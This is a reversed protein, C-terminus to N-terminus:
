GRRRRAFWLGFVTLVVFGALGAGGRGPSAACFAGGAVGYNIPQPGADPMPPPGADPMPPPGADPPPPPGADPPPPPGADPMGADVELQCTASCGDGDTTNGDECQEGAAANIYEDGCEVTTCNSDCSESDGGTDCVEAGVVLADGCIETCVSPGGLCEWGPEVGCTMSCGDGDTTNADDCSETGEVVGDGCIAPVTCAVSETVSGESLAYVLSLSRSEGPPIVKRVSIAIGIDQSLSSGPTCVLDPIDTTSCAWIGDADRNSFGGYMVRADPDRSALAIYSDPATTTASVLALSSETGDGQSVITNLTEYSGTEPQMNDPDVNRLYYVTQETATTNTLTVEILIFVGENFVSFTQQVDIGDVSGSWFASAGGRLGCVMPRCATRVGTFDGVVSRVGMLRSAFYDNGGVHIGFGEEPSGPVFFDGKVTAWDDDDPNAVFGFWDPNDPNRPHWGPPPPNVTGFSGHDSAGVELLRSRIFASGNDGDYIAECFDDCGAGDVTRGARTAGCIDRSDPVGDGDADQARAGAPAICAGLGVLLAFWTRREL